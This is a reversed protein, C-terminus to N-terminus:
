GSLELLYFASTDTEPLRRHTSRSVMSALGLDLDATFARDGAIQYKREWLKVLKNAMEFVHPEMRTLFRRNMTPGM